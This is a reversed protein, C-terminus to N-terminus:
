QISAIDVPDAEKTAEHHIETAMAMGNSLDTRTCPCYRKPLQLAKGMGYSQSYTIGNTAAHAPAGVM